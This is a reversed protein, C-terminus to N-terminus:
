GVKRHVPNIEGDKEMMMLCNAARVLAYPEKIYQEVQTAYFIYADVADNRNAWKPTHGNLPKPAPPPPQQAPAPPQQPTAFKATNGNLELDVAKNYLNRHDGRLNYWKGQVKLGTYLTERDQSGKLPSLEKATAEVKVLM